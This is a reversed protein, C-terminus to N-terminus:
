DVGGINWPRGREVCVHQTQPKDVARILERSSKPKVVATHQQDEIRRSGRHGAPRNRRVTCGAGAMDSEADFVLDSSCVDSSWDRKSRTHRRRSSFFFYNRKEITDIFVFYLM